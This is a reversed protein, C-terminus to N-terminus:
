EMYATLIRSITKGSRRAHASIAESTLDNEGIGHAYNDVSCIAAYPLSLEKAAMAEGAMTMGIIDAFLSMMRIEAKTELRPGTAQWYIGGDVAAIGCNGAVDLCRQRIVPDLGPIVHVAENGHVPEYTALMIFDDPIVIIGPKIEKKLSGTSNIGIIETVGIDLLAKLNARHNIKHPLIYNQQDRGHRCILAVKDSLTLVTSGFENTKHIEEAKDLLETEHLLVTGAIIGLM